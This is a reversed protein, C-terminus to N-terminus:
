FMVYDPPNTSLIVEAPAAQENMQEMNRAVIEDKWSLSHLKCHSGNVISKPSNINETLYAPFGLVFM